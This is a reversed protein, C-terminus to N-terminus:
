WQAHEVRAAVGVINHVEILIMVYLFAKKGIVLIM